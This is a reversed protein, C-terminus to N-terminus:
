KAQDYRRSVIDWNVVQWWAGLYDARANQYNLYYAHEWVDNGLLATQGNLIPHDQNATTVIKLDGQDLVLWVWGSGFRAAGAEEFQKKFAEFSGFTQDIAQALAGTPESSGGPTMTEWFLTHNAHGGGNNIIAQQKDKPFEDIRKLVALVDSEESNVDSLADNLKDVYTQHHKDHHLTMTQADIVPELADYDYTLQPLEFM